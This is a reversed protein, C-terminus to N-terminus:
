LDHSDNPCALVRAPRQNWLISGVSTGYCISVYIFFGLSDGSWAIKKCTFLQLCKGYTRGTRIDLVMLKHVNIQTESSITFACWEGDPSYAHEVFTGMVRNSNLIERPRGYTVDELTKVRRYIRRFCFPSFHDSTCTIRYRMQYRLKFLFFFNRVYIAILLLLTWSM